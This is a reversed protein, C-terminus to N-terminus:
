DYKCSMADDMIKHLLFAVRSSPCFQYYRDGPDTVKEYLDNFVTWAQEPCPISVCFYYEDSNM